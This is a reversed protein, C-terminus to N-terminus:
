VRAARWAAAAYRGHPDLTESLSFHNRAVEDEGIGRRLEGLYYHLGAQQFTSCQQILTEIGALTLLAEPQRHTDLLLAALTCRLAAEDAPAPHAQLGRRLQAEILDLPAGLALEANALHLYAPACNTDLALARMAEWCADLPEGAELLAGSRTAHLIAYGPYFAIAQCLETEAVAAHGQALAINGRLARVDASYPYLWLALRALRVARPYHARDLARRALVILAYRCSFWCVLGLGAVIHLPSTGHGAYWCLLALLLVAEPVLLLQRGIVVFVWTWRPAVVTARSYSAM